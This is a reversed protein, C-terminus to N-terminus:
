ILIRRFEVFYFFKFSFTEKFRPFFFRNSPFLVCFSLFRLLTRELLTESEFRLGSIRFRCVCVCVCVCVFCVYECMYVCM